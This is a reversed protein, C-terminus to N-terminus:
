LQEVTQQRKRQTWQTPLKTHLHIYIQVVYIFDIGAAESSTCILWQIYIWKEFSIQWFTHAVFQSCVFRFYQTNFLFFLGFQLLRFPLISTHAIKVHCGNISFRCRLLRKLANGNWFTFNKLIGNSIFLVNCIMNKMHFNIQQVCVSACVCLTISNLLIYQCAIVDHPSCVNTSYPFISLFDSSFRFSSNSCALFRHSLFRSRASALSFLSRLLFWIESKQQFLFLATYTHTCIQYYTSILLSCCCCCCWCCYPRNM